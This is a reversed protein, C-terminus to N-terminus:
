ADLLALYEHYSAILRGEISAHLPTQRYPTRHAEELIFLACQECLFYGILVGRERYIFANISLAEEGKIKVTGMTREACAPCLPGDYFWFSKIANGFQAKAQACLAGLLEDIAARDESSPQDRGISTFKM